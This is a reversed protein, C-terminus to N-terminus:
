RSSLSIERRTKELPCNEHHAKGCELCLEDQMLEERLVVEIFSKMGQLLATRSEEEMRNIVSSLWATRAQNIENIFGRGKALLAVRKLRRDASDNERRALGKRVLRDVIRTAAPYSIKLGWAIQGIEPRDHLNIFRLAEVQAASVEQSFKEKLLKENFVRSMVATFLNITHEVDQIGWEKM